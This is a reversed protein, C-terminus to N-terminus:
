DFPSCGPPHVVGGKETWDWGKEPVNVLLADLNDLAETFNNIRKRQEENM